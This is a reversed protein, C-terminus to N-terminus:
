AACIGRLYINAHKKNQLAATSVREEKGGSRATGSTEAEAGPAMQSGPPGPGPSPGAHRSAAMEELVLNRDVLRQGVKGKTEGM